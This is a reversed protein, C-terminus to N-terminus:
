QQQQQQQQQEQEQMQIELALMEQQIATEEAMVMEALEPPLEECALVAVAVSLSTEAEGKFVGRTPPVDAYDRGIATRIHRERTLLSNTPDLGVWGYGPLLAEVWAHTAGASSRDKDKEGHYLYGSVYRCPVRLERLMSAMIHAFDQCVGQRLSIAHDIPSDVKTAEPVYEFAKYLAQNLDLAVSVPDDRREAGLEAMLARLAATTKVFESPLLMEWYDGAAVMGDLEAWSAGNPMPMDAQWTKMEVVSEATIQLQKHAGPIGFHHVNNGLFDRYVHVSARPTVQLQYDLCRQQGETRPHMQVEVLTETVPRSYHYKTVHRIKYYM